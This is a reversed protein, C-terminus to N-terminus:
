GKDNAAPVVYLLQLNNGTVEVEDGTSTTDPVVKPVEDLSTYEKIGIHTTPSVVRIIKEIRGSRVLKGLALILEDRSQPEVLECIRDLSYYEPKPPNPRLVKELKRTLSAGSAPRNILQAFNM